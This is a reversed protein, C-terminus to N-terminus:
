HILTCPRIPQGLRLKKEQERTEARCSGQTYAKTDCHKRRNRRARQYLIGGGRTDARQPAPHNLEFTRESHRAPMAAASRAATLDLTRHIAKTHSSYRRLPFDLLHFVTSAPHGSLCKETSSFASTTPDIWLARLHERWRLPQSPRRLHGAPM